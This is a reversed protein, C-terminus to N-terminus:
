PAPACSLWANDLKAWRFDSQDFELAGCRTSVGASAVIMCKVLGGQGLDATHSELDIRAQKGKGRCSCYRTGGCPRDPHCTLEGTTGRLTLQAPRENSEYLFRVDTADCIFNAGAIRTGSCPATAVRTFGEFVTATRQDFLVRLGEEECLVPQGPPPTQRAACGLLFLLAYATPRM